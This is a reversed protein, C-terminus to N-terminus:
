RGVFGLVDGGPWQGRKRRSGSGATGIGSQDDVGDVLEGAPDLLQQRLWRHVPDDTNRHSWVMIETLPQLEM